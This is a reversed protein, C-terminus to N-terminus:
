QQSFDFAPELGNANQDRSTLPALGFRDEITKLISTTDYSTHDVNHKKAYKSIVITPVRSGPGWQDVKPPAVHDWQGGHEDYTIIIATDNWNPSNQVAEILSLLHNEGTLLDAYGPHENNNGVPKVFSVAPLTGAAAAAIFDTEDKLHATKAATGDAYNAFYVFPQHHYQFNGAPQAGSDAAIWANIDNWGGAYWAWSLNAASLRDGITPFTQNPVLQSTAVGPRHPTNVSYSTNVVFTGGDASTIVQGEGSVPATNFVTNPDDVSPGGADPAAPNAWEPTRAAILWFHNLFSGGFAAHFFRDCVTYNQAVVPVPLHMTHWYGMSEGQAASFYVFQNMGGDNIQFQETYFIHPLDNITNDTQTFSELPFPANPISADAFAPTATIDASTFPLTTYAGGDPGLQTVNPAAADVASLGDAGPFEGYLNDFSHNEMYIVVFHNIKALGGGDGADGADGADTVQVDGSADTPAADTPAADADAGADTTADPVTADGPAADGTADTTADAPKADAAADSAGADPTPTSNDDGNCGAVTVSLSITALLTGRQWPKLWNSVVM